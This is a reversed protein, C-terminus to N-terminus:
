CPSSFCNLLSVLSLLLHLCLRQFILSKFWLRKWKNHLTNRSNKWESHQAKSILVVVILTCREVQREGKLGQRIVFAWIISEFGARWCRSVFLFCRKSTELGWDSVPQLPSGPKPKWSFPFSINFLSPLHAATFMLWLTTIHRGVWFWKHIMKHHWLFFSKIIGIWVTQVILM